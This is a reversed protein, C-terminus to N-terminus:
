TGTLPTGSVSGASDTTLKLPSPSTEGPPPNVPSYVAGLIAGDEDNPDMLCVVHDGIDPMWYGKDRSSKDAVINLWWSLMHDHDTFVVRARVLTFDQAAVIGIRFMSRQMM